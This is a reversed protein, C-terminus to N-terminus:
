STTADCYHASPAVAKWDGTNRVDPEGFVTFLNGAQGLDAAKRFARALRQPKQSMSTEDGERSRAAASKGSASPM